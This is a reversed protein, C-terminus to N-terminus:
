QIIKRIEEDLLASAIEEIEGSWLWILFLSYSERRIVISYRSQVRSRAFINKASTKLSQDTKYDAIWIEEEVQALRDIRGCVVKGTALTAM